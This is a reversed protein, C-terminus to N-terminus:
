GKSYVLGTLMAILVVTSILVYKWDRIWAFSFIAILVRAVPTLVLVLLGLSLWGAPNLKITETIARIPSLLKIAQHNQSALLMIVGVLMLVISLLMGFLLVLAVPRDISQHESTNM